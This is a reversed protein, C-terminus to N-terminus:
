CLVQNINRSNILTFNKNFNIQKYWLNNNLSMHVQNIVSPWIYLLDEGNDSEVWLKEKLLFHRMQFCFLNWWPASTPISSVNEQSEAECVKM